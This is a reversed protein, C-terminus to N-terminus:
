GSVQFCHFLNAPPVSRQENQILDHRAHSACSRKMRPLLFINNWIQLGHGLTEPSSIGGDGAQEQVLMDDFSKCFASACERVTLSILAM